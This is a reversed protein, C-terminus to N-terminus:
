PLNGDGVYIYSNPIEVLGDGIKGGPGNKHTQFKKSNHGQYCRAIPLYGGELLALM